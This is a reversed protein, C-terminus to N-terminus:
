RQDQQANEVKKRGTDHSTMRQLVPTMCGNIFQRREVCRVREGMENQMKRLSEALHSDDVSGREARM